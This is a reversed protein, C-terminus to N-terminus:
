VELYMAYQADHGSHRFPWDEEGGRIIAQPRFRGNAAALALDLYRDAISPDRFNDQAVNGFRRQQAM